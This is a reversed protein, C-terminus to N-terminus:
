FCSIRIYAFRLQNRHIFLFLDVIVIIAIVLGLTFGPKEGSACALGAGALGVGITQVKAPLNGGVQTKTRRM